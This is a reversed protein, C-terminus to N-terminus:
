ALREDPIRNAALPAADGRYTALLREILAWAAQPWNEPRSRPKGYIAQLTEPLQDYTPCFWLTIVTRRQNSRNPHAAHLLRADGIVLDGAKVPVDVEDPDTQLAPHSADAKQIEDTHAPPLGHLRHRKLHSGPIVRLCGNDRNTDILYYMLFFQVPTDTYSIPESWGFGDQHWFLAPATEPPKSIIYGSMFKPEPFGLQRLAQLAAPLAILPALEPHDWVAILSGQLRHKEKREAPLEEALRDATQRIRHIMDDAAIERLHCYGESILQHRLQAARESNM